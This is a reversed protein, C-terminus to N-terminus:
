SASPWLGQGRATPEYLGHLAWPCHVPMPGRAFHSAEGVRYEVALEPTEVRGGGVRADMLFALAGTTLLTRELPYSAAGHEFLREIHRVQIGHYASEPPGGLFFLTADVRGDAHRAAFTFDGVHDELNICAARLGDRYEVLLATPNKVVEELPAAPGAAARAARAAAVADASWSRRTEVVERPLRCALAEDLLPRSWRGHAAADWVAEGQLCEVARIGTEGAGRREVMCQLAELAHIGYAEVHGPYAVVAEQLRCGLPLELEPLRWTVPLSSGALMPFGLERHTDYMWRARGWDYSLHKDNFVPVSRGSARFVDTMERFFEYRPYLIAGREDTPYDGNECVLLVHDVALAGTGLTLAATIDPCLRLGFQEARLASLDWEHGSQDVYLSVVRFPPYRYSGEYEYGMLFRDVTHQSHSRAFYSSCLAAVTPLRAGARPDPGRDFPVFPPASRDLDSM